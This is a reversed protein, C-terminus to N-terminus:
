RGENEIPKDIRDLKQRERATPFVILQGPEREYTLSFKNDLTGFLGPMQIGTMLAAPAPMTRWIFSNLNTLHRGPFPNITSGFKGWFKANPNSWIPRGIAGMEMSLPGFLAQGPTGFVGSLLLQQYAPLSPDQSPLNAEKVAELFTYKKGTKDNVENTYDIAEATSNYISAGVATGKIPAAWRARMLTFPTATEPNIPKFMYRASGEMTAATRGIGKGAKIFLNSSEPLLTQALTALRDHTLRAEQIAALGKESTLATEAPLKEMIKGERIFGNKTLHQALAGTNNINGRGKEILRASALADFKAYATSGVRSTPSLVSGTGLARSGLEATLLSGGAHVLSEGWTEQQGTLVEYGFHRAPVTGVTALTLGTTKAAVASYKGFGIKEFITAAKASRGAKASAITLIILGIDLARSDFKSMKRIRDQIVQATNNDILDPKGNKDDDRFLQYKDANEVIEYMGAFLSSLTPDGKPSDASMPDFGYIDKTLQRAKEAAEYAKQPKFASTLGFRVDDPANKTETFYTRNETLKSGLYLMSLFKQTIIPLNLSGTGANTGKLLLNFNQLDQQAEPDSIKSLDSVAQAGEINMLDIMRIKKGNFEIPQMLQEAKQAAELAYKESDAYKGDRWLMAALEHRYSIQQHAVTMVTRLDSHMALRREETLDQDTFVLSGDQAQAVEKGEKLVQLRLALAPIVNTMEESSLAGDYKEIVDKISQTVGARDGNKAQEGMKQEIESAEALFERPNKKEGPAAEPATKAADAAEEKKPAPAPKSQDDPQYKVLTATTATPAEPEFAKTDPAVKNQSPKPAEAVDPQIVKDVTPTLDVNDNRTRTRSAAAQEALEVLNTKITNAAPAFPEFVSDM